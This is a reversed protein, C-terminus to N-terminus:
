SWRVALTFRGTTRFGRSAYWRRPWRFTDAALEVSEVGQDFAWRVATDLLASGIGTGQESTDVVFEDIWFGVATSVMRLRATGAGNGAVFWIADGSMSRLRRAGGTPIGWAARACAVADDGGTVVRIRRALRAPVKRGRYYNVDVRMAVLQYIDWSLAKLEAAVSRDLTEDVVVYRSRQVDRQDRNARRVLGAASRVAGSRVFTFTRYWIEPLALDVAVFGDHNDTVVRRDGRLVQEYTSMRGVTGLSPM